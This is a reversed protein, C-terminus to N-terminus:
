ESAAKTDGTLAKLENQAREPRMSAVTAFALLHQLLGDPDLAEELQAKLDSHLSDLTQKEHESMGDFRIKPDSVAKIGDNFMEIQRPVYTLLEELALEFSQLKGSSCKVVTEFLMPLRMPIQPKSSAATDVINSNIGVSTCHARFEPTGINLMDRTNEGVAFTQVFNAAGPIAKLMALREETLLALQEEKLTTLKGQTLDTLKGDKLMAMKESNPIDLNLYSAIDKIAASGNADLRLHRLFDQSAKFMAEYSEYSLGANYDKAGPHLKALLPQKSNMAKDGKEIIQRVLRVSLPKSNTKFKDEEGLLAIVEKSTLFNNGYERRLAGLFGTRLVQNASGDQKRFWATVKGFFGTGFRTLETSTGQSDARKAKIYGSNGTIRRYASIDFSM